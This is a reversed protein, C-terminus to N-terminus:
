VLLKEPSFTTPGPSHSSKAKNRKSLQKKKNNKATTADKCRFRAAKRKIIKILFLFIFFNCVFLDLSNFTNHKLQEYEVVPVSVRPSILM